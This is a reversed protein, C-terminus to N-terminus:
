PLIPSDHLATEEVPLPGADHRLSIVAQLGPEQYRVHELDPDDAPNEPPLYDLVDLGAKARKKAALFTGDHVLRWNFNRSRLLAWPAQSEVSDKTMVDAIM